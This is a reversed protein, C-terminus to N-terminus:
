IVGQGGGGALPGPAARAPGGLPHSFVPHCRGGDAAAGTQFFDVARAALEAAGLATLEVFAPRLVDVGLLDAQIQMLLDNAAAGATSGCPESRSAPM